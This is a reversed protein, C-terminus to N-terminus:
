PASSSNARFPRLDAESLLKPEDLQNSRNLPMSEVFEFRDPLMNQPILQSAARRLDLASHEGKTVVFAVIGLESERDFTLCVAADVDDLQNMLASLEVLSIRVGSRKIVRDARGVCVYNGREDQYALDGTRYLTEGPVIDDRMVSATLVPDSWYGDM